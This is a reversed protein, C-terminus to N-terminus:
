LPTAGIRPYDASARPTGTTANYLLFFAAQIRHWGVALGTHLYFSGMSDIRAVGANDLISICRYYDPQVVVTNVTGDNLAGRFTVRYSMVLQPGMGPGSNMALLAAWDVRLRGGRVYVDVTPDVYSWNSPIGWSPSAANPVGTISVAGVTPNVGIVQGFALASLAVASGSADVISARDTLNTARLSRVAQELDAFRQELSNPDDAPM